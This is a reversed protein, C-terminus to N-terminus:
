AGLVDSMPVRPANLERITEAMMAKAQANGIGIFRHFREFKEHRNGEESLDYAALLCDMTDDKL